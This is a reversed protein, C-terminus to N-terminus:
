YILASFFVLAGSVDVERAPAPTLSGAVLTSSASKVSASAATEHDSLYINGEFHSKMKDCTLIIM